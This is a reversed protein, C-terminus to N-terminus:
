LPRRGCQGGAGSLEGVCMINKTLRKSRLLNSMVFNSGLLRFDVSIWKVNLNPSLAQESLNCEQRGDASNKKNTLLVTWHGFVDM